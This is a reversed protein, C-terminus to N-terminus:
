QNHDAPDAPKSANPLMGAKLQRPEAISIQEWDLIIRELVQPDSVYRTVAHGMAAMMLNYIERPIVDQFMGLEKGILELSRNAPTLLKQAKAIMYLAQLEELVWAKSIAVHNVTLRSGQEQLEKIRKTVGTREDKLIQCVQAAASRESYGAKVGADKKRLGQALYAALAEHRTNNLLPM